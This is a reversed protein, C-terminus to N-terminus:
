DADHNSKGRGRKSGPKRRDPFKETARQWVRDFARQGLPESKRLAALCKAKSLRRDPDSEFLKLLQWVARTEAGITVGGTPDPPRQSGIWSFGPLYLIKPALSVPSEFYGSEDVSFQRQEVSLSRTDEPARFWGLEESLIEVSPFDRVIGPLEDDPREFVGHGDHAPPPMWHGDRYFPKLLAFPLRFKM